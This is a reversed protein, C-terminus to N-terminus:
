VKKTWNRGRGPLGGQRSWAWIFKGKEPGRWGVKKRAERRRGAKGEGQGQCEEGWERGQGRVRSRKGKM